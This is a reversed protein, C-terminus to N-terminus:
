GGPLNMDVGTGEPIEGQETQESGPLVDSPMSPQVPQSQQIPQDAIIGASPKYFKALGVSLILFVAVLGITIWTLTDATKSGLLSSAMGGGLAGTLGGGKGKQILVVLVLLAACFIWIAAIVNMIFSVKSLLVPM